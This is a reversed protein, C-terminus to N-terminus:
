NELILIEVRRNSARESEDKEPISFIPESVGFGKYSLRSKDIGQNMLFNYIAKARKTSLDQKDNKACCLHGQIEIKLNPNNNLVFFLEFMKSRSENVVAFTNIIFNLNKISLKEGSKALNIQKMFVTDMKINTKSGDPNEITVNEPFKLYEYTKKIQIIEIKKIGIIEDERFFDKPQIYFLTVKRNESKIKSSNNLEGFNRTKFDERFKIKNNILSFVYDIRKKALTDNYSTSGDEDCFGYVGIVKVKNNKIIWNKLKLIEPNKLVYKNSEFFVSFKEQSFCNNFILYFIILSFIKM